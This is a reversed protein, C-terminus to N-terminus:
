YSISQSKELNKKAWFLAKECRDIGTMKVPKSLEKSLAFLVAGSGTCLDLIEGSYTYVELAIEVLRETEPRPILVGPGVLIESNYFETQGLIYQIPEGALRRALHRKIKRHLSDSIQLPPNLCLDSPSKNLVGALLWMAESSPSESEIRPHNLFDQVYCFLERYSDNQLTQHKTLHLSM